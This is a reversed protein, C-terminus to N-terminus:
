FFLLHLNCKVYPFVQLCLITLFSIFLILNKHGYTRIFFLIPLTTCGVMKCRNARHPTKWGLTGFGLGLKSASVDLSQRFFFFGVSGLFYNRHSSRFNKGMRGFHLHNVLNSFCFLFSANVPGKLIKRWFGSLYHGSM